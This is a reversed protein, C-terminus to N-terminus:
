NKDVFRTKGNDRAEPLELLHYIVAGLAKNDELVAKMLEARVFHVYRKFRENASLPFSEFLFDVLPRKKGLRTQFELRERHLRQLKEQVVHFRWTEESLDFRDDRNRAPDASFFVYRSGDTFGYLAPFTTGSGDRHPIVREIYLRSVARREMTSLGKQYAIAFPRSGEVPIIMRWADSREADADDPDKEINYYGLAELFFDKLVHDLPNKTSVPTFPPNM